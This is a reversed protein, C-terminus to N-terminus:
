GEDAALPAGAGAATCDGGHRVRERAGCPRGAAADRRRDEGLHGRERDAGAREVEALAEGVGVAGGPADLRGDLRQARAAVLVGGARADGLQALRDGGVLAPM